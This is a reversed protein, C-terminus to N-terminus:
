YLKNQVSHVVFDYAKDAEEFWVISQNRKFWTRQRKAYHLTNKVILKKVEGMSLQKDYWGRFERYGIGTMAESEWGYKTVIDDIEKRLGRRFMLEVRKEINYRISKRNLSLGIILTNNRLEQSDSASEREIIRVLHRKNKLVGVPLEIEKSLAINQLEIVSKNDLERRYDSNSKTGFSYDYLVGDIYLGTGGVMIPLHNRSTIEAIKEQAYKKFQAASFVTNPEVLDIGWYQVEAREEQSPKATGVNMEKYVTRSDACIIEGGLELALKHALSSKGSATEGVIVILPLEKNM